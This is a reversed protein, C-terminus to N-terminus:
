KETDPRPHSVWVGARCVRTRSDALRPCGGPSRRGQAVTRWDRAAGSRCIRASGRTERFPRRPRSTPAPATDLAPRSLCGRSDIEIMSASGTPDATRAKIVMRVSHAPVADSRSAISPSASPSPPRRPRPHGAVGCARDPRSRRAAGLKSMNIHTRERPHRESDPARRSFAQRLRYRARNRVRSEQLSTKHIPSNM